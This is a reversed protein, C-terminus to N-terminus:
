NFRNMTAEIGSQCYSNVAECCQDIIEPLKAQEEAPFNELVYKEPDISKGETAKPSPRGIGIRLRAFEAGLNKMISEVGHHGASSSEFTLRIKGFPLDLDDHVVLMNKLDIQYFQCIAATAIGSRNVYTEPKAIIFEASKAYYAVFDQSYRWSLGENQIFSDVVIFGLNHRTKQYRAGPNGLGVILKM